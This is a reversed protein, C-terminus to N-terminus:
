YKKMKRKYYGIVSDDL